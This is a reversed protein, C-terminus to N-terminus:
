SSSDTTKPSPPSSCEATVNQGGAPPSVEVDIPPASLQKPQPTVNLVGADIGGEAIRPQFRLAVEMDRLATEPFTITVGGPKTSQRMPKPSSRDLLDGAAALRERANQATLATLFTLRAMQGEVKAAFEQATTAKGLDIAEEVMADRIAAYHEHGRLRDLFDQGAGMRISIEADPMEFFAELLALTRLKQFRESTLRPELNLFREYPTRALVMEVFRRQERAVIRLGDAVADDTTGISEHFLAQSPIADSM